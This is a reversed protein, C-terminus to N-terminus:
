PHDIREVARALEDFAVAFEGDIDRQHPVVLGHKPHHRRGGEPEQIPTGGSDACEAVVAARGLYGDFHRRGLAGQAHDAATRVRARLRCDVQRPEPRM